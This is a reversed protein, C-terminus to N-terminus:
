TELKPKENSFRIPLLARIRSDRLYLGLWTLVGMVVPPAFADSVRVHTAIAGGLYGTVLVAGLVATQPIAFLVACVVETVAINNALEDPWGFKGSWEKTFMEPKALKMSASFFLGGLILASIVWGSITMLKNQKLM